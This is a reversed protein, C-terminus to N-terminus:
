EFSSVYWTEDDHSVTRFRVFARMKHVDHRIAKDMRMMEDVAPDVAIDLLRPEGHTLRWLVEYLLAWRRQSRHCAVRQAMEVFARPVRFRPARVEGAFDTEDFMALAPQEDGIEAWAVDEPNLGSGLARRAASQWATFTPLFTVQRM